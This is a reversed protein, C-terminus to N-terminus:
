KPVSHSSEPEPIFVKHSSVIEPTSKFSLGFWKSGSGDASQSKLSIVKQKSIKTKIVKPGM